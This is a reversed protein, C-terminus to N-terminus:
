KYCNVCPFRWYSISLVNEFVYVDSQTTYVNYNLSEIAMWRIPLRAVTRKVYVGEGRSLGFDAVKCTLNGSLLVNRAALDRHILQLIIGAILITFHSLSSPFNFTKSTKRFAQSFCSGSAYTLM